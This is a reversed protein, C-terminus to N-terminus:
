TPDPRIQGSFRAQVKKFFKITQGLRVCRRGDEMWSEGEENQRCSGMSTGHHGVTAWPPGHPECGGCVCSNAEVLISVGRFRRRGSHARGRGTAGCGQRLRLVAVDMKLFAQCVRAKSWVRGGQGRPVQVSPTERSAQINTSPIQLKPDGWVWSGM